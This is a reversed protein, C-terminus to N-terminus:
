AASMSLITSSPTQPMPGLSSSDHHHNLPHHEELVRHELQNLRAADMASLQSILFRSQILRQSGLGAMERFGFSSSITIPLVRDTSNALHIGLRAMGRFGCSSSITITSDQLVIEDDIYM